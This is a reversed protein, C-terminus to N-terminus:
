QRPGGARCSSITKEIGKWVEKIPVILSKDVLTYTLDGSGPNFEFGLKSKYMTTSTTATGKDADRPVYKTGHEKESKAKVCEFIEPTVGSFVKMDPM